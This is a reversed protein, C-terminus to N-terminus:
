SFNNTTNYILVDTNELKQEEPDHEYWLRVMNFGVKECFQWYVYRGVSDHRRRYDNHALKGYGSVIHSITENRTGYLRFFPSKATILITSSITLGHVSNRPPM